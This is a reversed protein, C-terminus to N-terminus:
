ATVPRRPAPVGAAGPDVVADPEDAVAVPDGAHEPMADRAARMAVMGLGMVTWFPIGGQPGELYVDFSMNIIAALWYAFLVAIVPLLPLAHRAARMGARMMGAAFTVQILLWLTLMPVGGRALM